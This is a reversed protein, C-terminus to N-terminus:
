AIFHPRRIEIVFRSTFAPIDFNYAMQRQRIWFMEAAWCCIGVKRSCSAPLDVGGIPKPPEGLQSCPCFRSQASTSRIGTAFRSNGHVLVEAVARLFGIARLM